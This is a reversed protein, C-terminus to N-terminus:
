GVSLKLSSENVEEREILQQVTRFIIQPLLDHRKQVFMINEPVKKQEEKVFSVELTMLIM